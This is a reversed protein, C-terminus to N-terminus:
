RLVDVLLSCLKARAFEVRANNYREASEALEVAYGEKVLVESLLERSVLDDDVVLLHTKM